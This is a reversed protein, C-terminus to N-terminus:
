WEIERATARVREQDTGAEEPKANRGVVFRRADDLHRRIAIGSTPERVV